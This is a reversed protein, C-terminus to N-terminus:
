RWVFLTVRDGARVQRDPDPDQAHVIGSRDESEVYQVAVQLGQGQLAAVADAETMGVVNPMPFAPPGNSVVLQVQDGRYVPGSAPEYSVVAGAPIADHDVRETVVPELDLARLAQVADSEPMGVLDTPLEIPERGQSVYVIVPTTEDVTQGVAPDTEVVLGAPVQEHFVHEVTAEFGADDLRAIAQAEDQGAVAPIQLQRPGASVLVGVTAGRRASDAPDTGVVQGAPVDRSPVPEDVVAPTFGAEELAATAADVSAGGVAPIATLPAVVRDYTLWGGGALLLLFLALWPWRRRRPRPGADADAERSTVVTDRVDVPLIVTDTHGDRLDVAVPGDPVADALARAFEGADRYRGRPDPDTARVVVEDVARSLQPLLASPRPVRSTTHMMATSYATDGEFPPRGTLCEYLVIGLAYVDTRADLSEGRVAEPATYRPTGAFRDDGLTTSASAAFRALGFDGIKVTGDSALLVNEPKVDRHVLGAAHAASVGAAAPGLLSLAEGPRLRGRLHLVDRLSMGEVYELVLYSGDAAVDFLTVVHPHHVRAAALAERRFRDLLVPDRQLDTQLIKVAVRRDLVEDQALHVTASGGAAIKGLLRYRGDLLDATTPTPTPADPM